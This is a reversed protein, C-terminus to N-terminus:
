VGRCNYHLVYVTAGDVVGTRANFESCGIMKCFDLLASLNKFKLERGQSSQWDDLTTDYHKPSEQEIAETSDKSETM